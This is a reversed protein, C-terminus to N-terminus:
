GTYIAYLGFITLHRRSLHQRPRRVDQQPTATAYLIINFMAADITLTFSVSAQVHAHFFVALPM